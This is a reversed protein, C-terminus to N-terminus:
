SHILTSYDSEARDWEMSDFFQWETHAHEMVAQREADREVSEKTNGEKTSTTKENKSSDNNKAVEKAKTEESEKQIQKRAVRKLIRKAGFKTGFLRSSEVCRLLSVYNIIVVTLLLHTNLKM